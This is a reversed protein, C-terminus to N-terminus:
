LQFNVDNEHSPYYLVRSRSVFRSFNETDEYQVSGVQCLSNKKEDVMESEKRISKM